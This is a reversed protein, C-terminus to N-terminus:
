IPGLSKQMFKGFIEELNLKEEQSQFGPPPKQVNATNSWSFNHHNKWGQNFTNSNPKYYQSQNNAVYNVDETSNSDFSSAGQFELNPHNRACNECTINSIANVNLKKFNNNLIVVQADLNNFFDIDHIDAPKKQTSRDTAKMYNNSAM